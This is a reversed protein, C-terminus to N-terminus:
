SPALEDAGEGGLAVKLPGGFFVYERFAITHYWAAM